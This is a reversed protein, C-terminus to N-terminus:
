KIRVTKLSPPSFIDIGSKKKVKKYKGIFKRIMDDLREQKQINNEDVVIAFVLCFSFSYLLDNIDFSVYMKFKRICHSKVEIYYLRKLYNIEWGNLM